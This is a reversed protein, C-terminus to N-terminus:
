GAPPDRRLALRPEWVRNMANPTGTGARRDHCPCGAWPEDAPHRHWMAQCALNPENQMLLAWEQAGHHFQSQKARETGRDGDGPGTAGPGAPFQTRKACNVASNAKNRVILGVTRTGRAGDRDAGGPIPKTECPRGRRRRTGGQHGRGKGRTHPVNAKNRVISEVGRGVRCLGSNAKSPMCTRNVMVRKGDLMQSDRGEPPIPKTQAVPLRHSSTLTSNPSGAITEAQEDSSVESKFSRKSNPKNPAIPRTSPGGAVECAWHPFQTRKARIM